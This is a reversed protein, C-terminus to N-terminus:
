DCELNEKFEISEKWYFIQYIPRQPLYDDAWNMLERRLADFGTYGLIPPRTLSNLTSSNWVHFMLRAKGRCCDISDVWYELGFSGLYTTAPNAGVLKDTRTLSAPANRCWDQFYTCVGSLGGLGRDARGYLISEDCYPDCREELLAKIERRVKRLHSSGKLQETFTDRGHFRHVDPGTGTMFEGGVDWPETMDPPHPELLQNLNPTLEGDPGMGNPPTGTFGLPDCRFTPAGGVYEYLGMGDAYGVPDRQLWRGLTPHYSRHRVHYLGTESDHYYGCYLIANDYDSEGDGDASFDADLVEVEGYPDYVYRELASGDTGILATVNMNADTTYYLRQDDCVDDEDTNKDRLVAADIYRLSWVYQYEPQLTEPGTNESTSKRTELIQWRANYFFHLYADYTQDLPDSTNVFKKTRRGLGDYECKLVVNSGDKVEVLRNWADYTAAYAATLDLPQPFTTTNGRADHATLPRLSYRLRTRWM